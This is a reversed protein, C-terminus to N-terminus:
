QSRRKKATRAGRQKGRTKRRQSRRGGAMEAAAAREAANLSQLYLEREAILQEQSKKLQAARHQDRVAQRAAALRVNRNALQQRFRIRNEPTAKKAPPAIKNKLGLFNGIEKIATNPLPRIPISGPRYNPFQSAASLSALGKAEKYKSELSKLYDGVSKLFPYSSFKKFYEFYTDGENDRHLFNAGSQFMLELTPIDMTRFIPTKGENDKANTNAGSDILLKCLKVDALNCAIHLPTNGYVDQSNVDAGLEILLKSLEIRRKRVVEHLISEQLYGIKKNIDAGAEVLDKLDDIDQYRVAQLLELNLREQNAM